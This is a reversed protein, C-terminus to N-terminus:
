RDGPFNHGCSLVETPPVLRVAKFPVDPLVTYHFRYICDPDMQNPAAVSIIERVYLVEGSQMDVIAGMPTIQPSVFGTFIRANVTKADALANASILMLLCIITKM